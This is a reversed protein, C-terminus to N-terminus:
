AAVVPSTYQGMETATSVYKEELLLRLKVTLQSCSGSSSENHPTDTTLVNKIRNRTNFKGIYNKREEGSLRPGQKMNRKEGELYLFGEVLLFALWVVVSTMFAVTSINHLLTAMYTCNRQNSAPQPSDPLGAAWVGHTMNVEAALRTCLHWVLSPDSIFCMEAKFWLSVNSAQPKKKKEGLLASVISNSHQWVTGDGPTECWTCATNTILRQYVGFVSLVDM